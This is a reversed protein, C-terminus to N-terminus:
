STRVEIGNLIKSTEDIDTRKEFNLGGKGVDYHLFEKRKPHSIILTGTVKVPLFVTMLIQFGGMGLMKTTVSEFTKSDSM